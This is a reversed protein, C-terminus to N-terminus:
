AFRHEDMRRDRFENWCHQLLHRWQISANLKRRYELWEQSQTSGARENELEQRRSACRCVPNRLSVQNGSRVQSNVKSGITPDSSRNIEGYAGCCVLAPDTTKLGDSGWLYSADRGLNVEAGLSNSDHTLHIAYKMNWKNWANYKRAAFKRAIRGKGDVFNVAREFMLDQKHISDDKAIERYLMVTLDPDLNGLTEWYEPGECTFDISAIIGEGDRQVSWELYEDQPRYYLDVRQNTQADVVRPYAIGAPHGPDQDGWRVPGEAVKAAAMLNGDNLAILMNPLGTWEPSAEAVQGAPPHLADFFAPTAPRQNSVTTMYGSIRRHWESYLHDKVKSRDFDAIRAPPLYTTDM